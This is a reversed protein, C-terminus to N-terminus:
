IAEILTQLLNNYATIFKLSLGASQQYALMLMAEKDSDVNISNKMDNSLTDFRTQMMKAKVDSTITYFNHQTIIENAYSAITAAKGDINKTSDFTVLKNTLNLYESALSTDNAGMGFNMAPATRNIDNARYEQMKGFAFAQPNNQIAQNVTLFSAFNKSPKDSQILFFDNIGFAEGCFGKLSANDLSTINSSGQDFGLTMKKDLTEIVLYGESDPTSILKGNADVLSAKVLGNPYLNSNPVLKINPDSSSVVTQPFFLKNTIGNLSMLEDGSPAAITFSITATHPVTKVMSTVDLSFTLPYDGAVLTPISFSLDPSLREGNTATISSSGATSYAIPNGTADTLAFNGFTFNIEDSPLLNSSFATLDLNLNLQNLNGSKVALNINKLGDMELRSSNAASNFHNNITDILGQMNFSGPISNSSIKSLDLSLPPIRSAPNNSSAEIPKGQLDMLNIMMKGEGIMRDNLKVKTTGQYKNLATAGTGKNHIANFNKALQLALQDLNELAAPIINDRMELCASISGGLLNYNVLGAEGRNIFISKSRNQGDLTASELFIPELNQNFIFQDSSEVAKYSFSYLNKGVIEQGDKKTCVRVLGNTDQMYSIDLYGSLKQLEAFQDDNLQAYELSNEATVLRKTNIIHINRLIANIDTFNQSIEQDFKMRDSQLDRSLDRIFNALDSAKYILDNRMSPNNALAEISNYFDTLKHPLGDKEGPKSLKNLFSKYYDTIKNATTAESKSQLLQKELFSNRNSTIISGTIGAPKDGLVLASTELNKASYNEDNANAINQMALDM